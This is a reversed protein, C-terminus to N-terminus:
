LTGWADLELKLYSVELPYIVGVQAMFEIADIITKGYGVAMENVFDKLTQEYSRIDETRKPQPRKYFNVRETSTKM